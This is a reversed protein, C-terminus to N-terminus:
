GGPCPCGRFGTPAGARVSRICNSSDAACQAGHLGVDDGEAFGHDQEDGFRRAREFRDLAKGLAGGAGLGVDGDAQRPQAQADAPGAAQALIRHPAIQLGGDGAFADITRADRAVDALAGAEHELAPDLVAAVRRDFVVAGARRGAAQAGVIQVFGPDGARAVQMDAAHERRQRRAREGRCPPRHRQRPRLALRDAEVGVQPGREPRRAVDHALGDVVQGRLGVPHQGADFFAAQEGAGVRGLGDGAEVALAARL